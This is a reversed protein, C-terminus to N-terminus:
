RRSPFLGSHDQDVAGGSFPAALDEARGQREREDCPLREADLPDPCYRYARAYLAELEAAVGGQGELRVIDLDPPPEASRCLLIKAVYRLEAELTPICPKRATTNLGYYVLKGFPTRVWAEIGFADDVKPDETLVRIVGRTAKRKAMELSMVTKLSKVESRTAFRGHNLELRSLEQNHLIM